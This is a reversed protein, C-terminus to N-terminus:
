AHDAKLVRIAVVLEAGDFCRFRPESRRRRQARGAGDRGYTLNTPVTFASQMTLWQM